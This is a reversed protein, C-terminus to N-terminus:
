KKDKILMNQFDEIEMSDSLHLNGIRTRILSNLYAGCHLEKGLDRAISRIYTGKSCVIRFYILPLEFKTIEFNYITISKAKIKVSENKRAYDYAPRGKIKVASFVPPIQKQNGLFKKTNKIIIEETLHKIDFEEDIETEKDYSPRSAGLYFSGTYEKELGQFEEIRRTFKGTCIILLGSALPDLTGAHGVKIKKIGLNYKITYRLKNVVQFSTWELPKNILLVKGDLYPSSIIKDSEEIMNYLLFLM